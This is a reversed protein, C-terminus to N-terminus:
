PIHQKWMWGNEPRRIRRQCITENGKADIVKWPHLKSPMYAGWIPFHAAGTEWTKRPKMGEGRWGSCWSSCFKPDIFLFEYDHPAHGWVIMKAANHPTNSIVRREITEGNRCPIVVKYEQNPLHNPRRWPIRM